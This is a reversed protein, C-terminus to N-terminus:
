YAEAHDDGRKDAAIEYGVNTKLIGEMRGINSREKLVYGKSGLKNIVQENLCEKEYFVEEPKWQHHFRCSQIADNISMNYEMVNVCAQFVSTIITSGGPTGIVMFLNGDKEVITPTMSSLMRKGPEIKNAEAGVLGYLNPHGVKSSFDDMENNLLFGGKAILKSGYGGNLTTTLSVANGEKDVISFHTTEESEITGHDIMEVESAKDFSFDKMRTQMYEKSILKQMPVEVFDADGMFHARDSYARREAEVIIQIDKESHFGHFEHNEVANFLQALVIGGSSPPPMSSIEYDKYDFSIVERWSVNYNELDEMSIIGKGEQISEVLNLAVEGKYFGDAGKAQISKLTQALDKQIFLDNEAYEKEDTFPSTINPNIKKFKEKSRNLNKAQAKTLRFGEEALKISPEILLDWNKLKSFRKYAAEMGKVAGPVGVALAGETSLDKIINGDQDQYMNETSLLPAKERFDLAYKAGDKDRYIMFGGGGINGAVPYVVALAFHVAIAADVANGGKKLIDIGVTSALPHASAVGGNKSLTNKVIEYKPIEQKCSSIILFQLCILLFIFKFQNKKMM